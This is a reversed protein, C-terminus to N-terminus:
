PLRRAEEHPPGYLSGYCGTSLCRMICLERLHEGEVSACADAECESRKARWLRDQRAPVRARALGNLHLACCCHAPLLASPLRTRAPPM